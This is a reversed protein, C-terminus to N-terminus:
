SWNLEARNRIHTSEGVMKGNHRGVTSKGGGKYKEEGEKEGETTEEQSGGQCM